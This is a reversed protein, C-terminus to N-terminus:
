PQEGQDHNQVLNATAKRSTLVAAVALPWLLCRGARVAPSPLPNPTSLRGTLRFLAAATVVYGGTAVLVAVGLRSM